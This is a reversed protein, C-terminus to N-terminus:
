GFPPGASRRTARGVRLPAPSPAATGCEPCRDPTARLDYGCAPCRGMARSGQRRRYIFAALTALPWAGSVLALFWLSVSASRDNRTYTALRLDSTDRRIPLWTSLDEDIPWPGDDGMTWTWGPGAEEAVRRAEGLESGWWCRRARDAIIRGRGCWVLWELRDVRDTAVTWFSGTVEM